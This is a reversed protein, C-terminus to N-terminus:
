LWTVLMVAESTAEIISPRSRCRVSASISRWYVSVWPAEITPNAKESSSPKLSSGRSFFMPEARSYRGPVPSSPAQGCRSATSDFLVM